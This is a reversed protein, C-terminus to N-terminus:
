APIVILSRAVSSGSRSSTKTASVLPYALPPQLHDYPLPATPRGDGVGLGIALAELILDCGFQRWQLIEQLRTSSGSSRPFSRIGPPSASPTSPHPARSQRHSGWGPQARAQPVLPAKPSRFGHPANQLGRASRPPWSLPSLMPM